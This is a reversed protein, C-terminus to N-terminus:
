AARRAIRYLGIMACCFYGTVFGHFFPSYFVNALFDSM